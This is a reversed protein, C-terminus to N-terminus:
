ISLPNAGAFSLAKLPDLVEELATKIEGMRHSVEAQEDQM